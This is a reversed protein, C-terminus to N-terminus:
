LRKKYLQIQLQIAILYIDQFERDHLATQWRITARLSVSRKTNREKM